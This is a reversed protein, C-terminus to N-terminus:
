ARPGYTSIFPACYARAMYTSIFSARYTRAMYDHIHRWQPCAKVTLRSHTIAKSATSPVIHCLLFDTMINYITDIQVWM